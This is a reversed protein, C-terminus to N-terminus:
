RWAFLYTFSITISVCLYLFSPLGLVVHMNLNPVGILWLNQYFEHSRYLNLATGWIRCWAVSVHWTFPMSLACQLFLPAGESLCVCYVVWLTRVRWGCVILQQTIFYTAMIYVPWKLRFNANLQKASSQNTDMM